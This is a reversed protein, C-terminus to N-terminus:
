YEVRLVEIEVKGIIGVLPVLSSLNEGEIFKIHTADASLHETTPDVAIWQGAVMSEAWSHYLFGQFNEAYVIGSVVRTPIGLARAFATYLYAHGQCEAKKKTLVDLATFSDIPEQEINKGIWKLIADIQELKTSADKTIEQAMSVIEDNDSPVTYSPQLYTSQPIHDTGASAVLGGTGTARVRCYVNTGRYECVQRDDGPLVIESGLGSILVELGTVEYPREIPEPTKILSFDLLSEDKNLTAELLYAKAQSESELGSLLVGGLAMEFLPRGVADIWTNVEQGFYETTVKFASGTFLDSEQYAEIEQSVDQISQTESDYIKYHYTRGIELGKVVPYLYLISGPYLPGDVPITEMETHGKSVREVELVGDRLGGSLKLTSGDFDYDYLFEKILLDEGILDYSVLSIKKDMMLFRFRLVAQSRVEFCGPMSDSAKIAFHSFGIKNGNFIIGSWYESYPLRALEYRPAPQPPSGADRFYRGACGGLVLAVTMLVLCTAARPCMITETRNKMM